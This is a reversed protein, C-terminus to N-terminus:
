THILGEGSRFARRGVRGSGQVLRHASHSLTREGGLALAQRPYLMPARLGPRDGSGPHLIRGKEPVGRGQGGEEQAPEAAMLGAAADEAGRPGRARRKEWACGRQGRAEGPVEPGGAAPAPQRPDEHGQGQVAPEDRCRPSFSGARPRTWTRSSSWGM